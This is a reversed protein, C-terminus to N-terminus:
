ESVLGLQRLWTAVDQYNVLRSIQGGEVDWVECFRAGEVSRSTPPIPGSPTMLEGLHTGTWSCESVVGDASAVQHVVTITLDPFATNFGQMFEFFGARGEFVMGFPVVDVRVEEAAMMSAEQLQGENFLGYLERALARNQDATVTM